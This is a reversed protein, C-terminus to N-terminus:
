GSTQSGGTELEVDASGRYGLLIDKDGLAELVYVEDGIKQKVVIGGYAPLYLSDGINAKGEKRGGPGFISDDGFAVIVSYQQKAQASDPIVLGSKTETISKERAVLVIEGFFKAGGNRLRENLESATM